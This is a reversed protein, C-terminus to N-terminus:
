VFSYFESDWSIYIMLIIKELIEQIQKKARGPLFEKSKKYTYQFSVWIM